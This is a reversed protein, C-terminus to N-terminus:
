KLAGAWSLVEVIAEFFEEPIAEDLEAKDHLARALEINQLIPIGYETATERILAAMAGEGKAVITPLPSIDPDYQIAIALRIPNIVVAKATKVAEVVNRQAWEQHLQKRRQKLKPDGEENKHERRVETPSMRMKKTYAHKQYVLDLVAILAFLGAVWFGARWAREWLLGPQALVDAFPLRHADGLTDRILLWFVLIVVLSKAFSKLVEVVNNMSFLRKIGEAPDIKALEPSVKEFALLAGTQMFEIALGLLGVALLFLASVGLLLKGGEVLM